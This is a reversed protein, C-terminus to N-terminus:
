NSKEPQSPTGPAASRPKWMVSYGEVFKALEQKQQDDLIKQLSLFAKIRENLLEAETKMAMDGAATLEAETVNPKALAAVFKEAALRQAEIKPKASEESKTLLDLVAKKQEANVTIRSTLVDVMLPNFLRFASIVCPSPSIKNRVPTTPSPPVTPPLPAAEQAFVNALPLALITALALTLITKNM